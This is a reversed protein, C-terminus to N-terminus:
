PELLSGNDKELYFKIRKVKLSPNNPGMEVQADSLGLVAQMIREPKLTRGPGFRIDLMLHDHDLKWSRVCAKADIVVDGSEKKKTVMFHKQNDFDKWKHDSGVLLPSIIEYSAANLTQDLSPFFRPISKVNMLEYGEPLHGKVSETATAMNLRAALEVDCYEAESEYGVSIAPGFSIKPKPRNGSSLSLPWNSKELARRIAEIHQLHTLTSAGGWRRFRLRARQLTVAM